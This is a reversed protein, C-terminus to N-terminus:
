SHNIRPGGKEKPMWQFAELICRLAFEEFRTVSGSIEHRVNDLSNDM